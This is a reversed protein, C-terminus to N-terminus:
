HTLASICDILRDLDANNTPVGVSARLAGVPLGDLCTRFHSALRTKRMCARTRGAPHNFAREAAGPNCFCGGRIALGHDRAAAEVMEFPLLRGGRRLNFAISGGRAHPSPPGYIVMHDDLGTLRELLKTTLGAIHHEIMSMGLGLLWRLGDCVAPMALFNPTGDEFGEAGRKVFAVDNQVSVFEVTGGGFFRRRLLPLADRRALLAGVGTPYGFL